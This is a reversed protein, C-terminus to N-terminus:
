EAAHIIWTLRQMLRAWGFTLALDVTENGTTVCSTINRDGFAISIRAANFYGLLECAYTKDPCERSYIIGSTAHVMIM